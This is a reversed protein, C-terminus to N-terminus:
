RIIIDIIHWIGAIVSSVVMGMVVVAIIKMSDEKSKIRNNRM